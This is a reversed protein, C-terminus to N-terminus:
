FNRIEIGAFISTGKLVLVKDPNTLTSVDRKDEIGGFIAVMEPKVEWNSPVLLKTGGFIQTVELEVRGNIDAQGLNLESGGFINVIDGGKFNKSVVNKKTGGFVSTADVYDEPINASSYSSSSDPNAAASNSGSGDTVPTVPDTSCYRSRKPRLILFLGAIIFFSPWLYRKVTLEPYFENLLFVGGILVLIFWVGGRFNHRLGMFLGLAILLMQWTFLWSPVAILSIKLFAVIGILLLFVGTWIHGKGNYDKRNRYKERWQRRRERWDNEFQTM